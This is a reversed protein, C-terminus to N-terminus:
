ALKWRCFLIEEFCLVHFRHLLTIIRICGSSSAPLQFSNAVHAAWSPGIIDVSCAVHAVVFKVLEEILFGFFPMQSRGQLNVVLKIMRDTIIIVLHSDSLKFTSVFVLKIEGVKPMESGQRTPPPRLRLRHM